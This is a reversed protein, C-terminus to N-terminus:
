VHLACDTAVRRPKRKKRYPDGHAESVATVYRALDVSTADVPLTSGWPSQDLSQFAVESTERRSVAEKRVPVAEDRAM